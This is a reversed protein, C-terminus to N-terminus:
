FVYGGAQFGLIPAVEGAYAVPGGEQPNTSALKAFVFALSIGGTAALLWSFLTISGISALNAPLLAIGSGM